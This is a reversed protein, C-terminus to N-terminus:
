DHYLIWSVCTHHLFKFGGTGRFYFINAYEYIKLLPSPTSAMKLIKLMTVSCPFFMDNNMIGLLDNKYTRFCTQLPDKSFKNLTAKCASETSNQYLTAGVAAAATFEKHWMFFQSFVYISLLDSQHKDTHSVLQQNLKM